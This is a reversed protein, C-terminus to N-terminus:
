HAFRFQDTTETVHTIQFAVNATHMPVPRIRASSIDVMYNKVRYGSTVVSHPPVHKGLVNSGPPTLYIDM